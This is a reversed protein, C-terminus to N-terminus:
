EKGATMDYYLHADHIPVPYFDAAYHGKVVYHAHKVKVWRGQTHFQLTRKVLRLYGQSWEVIYRACALSGDYRVMDVMQPLKPYTEIKM